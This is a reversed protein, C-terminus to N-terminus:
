RQGMTLGVATVARPSIELHSLRTIARRGYKSMLCAPSKQLQMSLESAFDECQEALEELITSGCRSCAVDAVSVNGVPRLLASALLRSETATLNGLAKKVVRSATHDMALLPVAPFLQHLIAARTRQTGYEILYQLVLNGHPHSCLSRSGETIEAALEAMQSVSCHMIMSGLVHCGFRHRAVAAAQGKMELAVFGIASVNMTEVLKVLVQHGHASECLKLVEGRLEKVMSAREQGVAAELAAEVVESGHESLALTRWASGIWTLILSRDLRDGRRLCAAVAKAAQADATLELADTIQVPWGQLAALPSASCHVVDEDECAVEMIPALRTRASHLKGPQAMWWAQASRQLGKLVCGGGPSVMRATNTMKSAVAM